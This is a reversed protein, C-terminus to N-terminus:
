DLTLWVRGNSVAIGGIPRGVDVSTVLAQGRPDVKALTGSAGGVVWVAGTDVAMATPAFALPVTATVRGSEPDIRLVANPGGTAVWISGDGSAIAVTAGTPKVTATPAGTALDIRDVTSDRFELVWVADTTVAIARVRAALQLTSRPRLSAPDLRLLSQDTLGVWLDDATGAVALLGTLQPGPFFPASLQDYAELVRSLTGLFGNGIWVTGPTASLSTPASSLGFTKLTRGSQVDIRTLTHDDINGIWASGDAVVIPGPAAGVPVDEVLADSTPDVVAVSNAAADVTTPDLTAKPALAFAGVISMVVAIAIVGVGLAVRRPPRRGHNPARAASGSTTAAPQEEGGDVTKTATEVLPADLWAEQRLIAGQLRQLEPGPEIGLEDGLAARARTFVDLAEAQRGSRYLALMLQAAFRERVPNTAVLENLEGILSGAQGAALEAEIRDELAALRLEELRPIALRAVPEFAIDSLPAGRWLGLATRLLEAARGPDRGHIARAEGVLESFRELDLQDASMTVMYGPLRTVLISNRSADPELSARLRSVFVQVMKPASPPPDEGWVEEILRDASVIENAHLLLAVLLARQRAGGINAPRGGVRVEFPGLIAFEIRGGADPM